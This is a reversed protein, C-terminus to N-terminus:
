ASQAALSNEGRLLRASLTLAQAVVQDMNYYRYSALRGCSTSARVASPSRRISGISPPTRPDRCPITPIAPQGESVRLRRDHTPAGPRDPVQVGHVRTYANENPYNVVAAPQFVPRDFTEFQFELSRYPLKGCKFDFFEDIPGTFIMESYPIVDEIERYDTNLLVKINPHRLMREFLKSYGDRPMVQYTDTFYRDDRSTRFPVRGTM